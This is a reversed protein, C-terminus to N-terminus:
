TLIFNYLIFLFTTYDNLKDLLINYPVLDFDSSGGYDTLDTKGKRTSDM